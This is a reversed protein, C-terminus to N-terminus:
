KWYFAAKFRTSYNDGERVLEESQRKMWQAIERRQAKTMEHAKYIQISAIPKDKMGKM